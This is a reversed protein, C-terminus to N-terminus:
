DSKFTQRVKTAAATMARGSNVVGVIMCFLFFSSLDTVVDQIMFITTFQSLLMTFNLFLLPIASDNLPRM